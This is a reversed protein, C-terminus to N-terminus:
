DQEVVCDVVASQGANLAKVAQRLTAVLEEAREVRAGYAHCARALLPYDPAHSFRTAVADRRQTSLGDPFLEYVPLRSARYGRNNLIVTLFPTGWEAAM